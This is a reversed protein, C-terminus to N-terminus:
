GTIAALADPIWAPRTDSSVAACQKILGGDSNYILKITYWIPVTMSNKVTTTAFCIIQTKSNDAVMNNTSFYTDVEIPLGDYTIAPSRDGLNM